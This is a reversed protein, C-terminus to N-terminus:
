IRLLGRRTSGRSKTAADAFPEHLARLPWTRGATGERQRFAGSAPFVLTPDAFRLRLCKVPFVGDGKVLTRAALMVRKSLGLEAIFAQYDDLASMTGAYRQSVGVPGAM